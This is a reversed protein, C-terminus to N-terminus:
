VDAYVLRTFMDPIIFFTWARRQATAPSVERGDNV